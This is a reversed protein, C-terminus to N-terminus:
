RTQSVRVTPRRSKSTGVEERRRQGAASTRLDEILSQRARRIHANLGEYLELLKRNGALEVFLHHFAQNRRLRGLDDETVREVLLEAAM